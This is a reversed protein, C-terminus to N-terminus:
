NKPNVWQIASGYATSSATSSKPPNYITINRRAVIAKGGLAPYNPDGNSDLIEVVLNNGTRQSSIVLAVHGYGAGITPFSIISGPIPDDTNNEFYNPLKQAVTAATQGGNGFGVDVTKSVGYYEQLYRVILTVCQGQFYYENVHDYRQINKSGNFASAFNAINSQSTSHSNPASSTPTNGCPQVTNTAGVPQNQANYAVFNGDDQITFRVAGPRPGTQWIPNNNPDYIILNSNQFVTHKVSKGNTGSNWIPKNAKVNYLVLNGDTQADLRFCQNPSVIRTGPKMANNNVLSNGSPTTYQTQQPTQTPQQSIQPAQQPPQTPQPTQGTQGQKIVRIRQNTNNRDCNWIMPIQNNLQQGQGFGRIDLCLNTDVDTRWHFLYTDGYQGGLKELNWDQYRAFESSYTNLVTPKIELTPVNISYGGYNSQLNIGSGNTLYKFLSDNDPSGIWTNFQGGNKLGYLKTINLTVPQGNPATKEMQLRVTKGDVLDNPYLPVAGAKEVTALISGLSSLVVITAAIKGLKFNSFNFM